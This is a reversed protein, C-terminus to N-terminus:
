SEAPDIGGIHNRDLMRQLICVERFLHNDPTDTQVFDSFTKSHARNLLVHLAQIEQITLTLKLKNQM